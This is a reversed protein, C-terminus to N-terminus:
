AAGEELKSVLETLDKVGTPYSLFSISSSLGQAAKAAEEAGRRGADDSDFALVIRRGRFVEAFSEIARAGMGAGPTGFPWEVGYGRDAAISDTLIAAEVFDTLGECFLIPDDEEAGEWFTPIAFLSGGIPTGPLDLVKLGNPPEGAASYRLAISRIEGAPGFVRVAVRYGLKAKSNLWSDTSSGVNFAVIGPPVPWLNRSRLYAEGEPDREVLSQWLSTMEESSRTPRAAPSTPQRLGLPSEGHRRGCRCEGALLHSFTGGGEERLSGGGDDRTCHAWRGDDSLFGYCREGQGRRMSDHGGCVPCPVSHTFRTM